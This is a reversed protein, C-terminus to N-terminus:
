VMLDRREIRRVAARSWLVFAAGGVLLALIAPFPGYSDALYISREVIRADFLWESFALVIFAVSLVGLVIQNYTKGHLGFEGYMWAGSCFIAYGVWIGAFALYEGFGLRAVLQEGSSGSLLYITTFFAASNLILAVLMTLVRSAVLGEASVPLSRLFGLRKSFTDGWSYLYDKSLANTGFTSVGFMFFIDAAASALTDPMSSVPLNDLLVVAFLGYLAALVMTALYSFRTRRLERGALWLANRWTSDTQVERGNRM